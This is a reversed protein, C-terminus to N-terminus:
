VEDYLDQIQKRIDGCHIDVDLTRNIKLESNVKRIPTNRSYVKKILVLLDHKSIPGNSGLHTIHSLTKYKETKLFYSYFFEYWSLTTLGNWEHHEYGEVENEEQNLFWDMLGKSTNGKTTGIISGRLIYVNDRGNLISDGISKSMGYLDDADTSSLSTKKADIPKFVCDTSAHVVIKNDIESLLKPIFCNTVLYSNVSSEKQPIKGICNVIIDASSESIKQKYDSFNEINFRDNLVEVNVGQEKMKKYCMSGLMGNSGLILVSKM